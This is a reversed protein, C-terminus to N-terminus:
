HSLTLFDFLQVLNLRRIRAKFKSEVQMQGKVNVIVICDNIRLREKSCAIKCLRLSCITKKVFKRERLLLSNLEVIIIILKWLWQSLHAGCDFLAKSRLGTDKQENSLLVSWQFSVLFSITNIAALM